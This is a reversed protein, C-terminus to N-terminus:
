KLPFYFPPAGVVGFRALHIGG